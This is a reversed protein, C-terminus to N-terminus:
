FKKFCARSIRDNIALALDEKQEILCLHLCSFGSQDAEHLKSFLSRAIENLDGNKSLYDVSCDVGKLRFLSSSAPLLILDESSFKKYNACEEISDHLLTPTKPAYHLKSTGPSKQNLSHMDHFKNSVHIKLNLCEEILGASIHGPRLICPITSTLDLITSEIGLQTPGGDFVPPCDFGFLDLVQKANTPSTRNSPNASPAALPFTLCNLMDQFIQNSPARIGVTELNATVIDPVKEKKKLLLTLPGPWFHDALKQALEDVYAFELAREINQVHLIVPNASPRGKLNFIKEVANKDLGNAALGYVTETPLVALNGELLHERCLAFSSLM